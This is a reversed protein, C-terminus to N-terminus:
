REVRVIRSTAVLTVGREVLAAALRRPDSCGLRIRHARDDMLERLDRYIQGQRGGAAIRRALREAIRVRSPLRLSFYLTSSALLGAVLRARHEREHAAVGVM